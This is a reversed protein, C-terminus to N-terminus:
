KEKSKDFLDALAERPGSFQFRYGSEILRKPQAFRGELIMVSMEGLVNRMLFAPVPFWYPRHLVAALERIFEALSTQVPAIMNYVGRSDDKAMLHRVGGVWDKVHIWPFAQRGTGIPGGFFLRVPLAILFMLPSKLALVPATRLVLRRLGLEEVAKTAQEWKVTLQAPFDDGPPTSEDALDGKLGYHNIGSLQVFLSPRRTAERIAQVLALGPLLRSDMFAQKKSTTWPWSSLSTGAAHIVVDMENMRQGWGMTTRGDWQITQVDPIVKAGRTLIFVKHGDKLLSKTLATGLLGSGGSILVNM